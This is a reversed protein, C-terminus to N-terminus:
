DFLHSALGFFILVITLIGLVLGTTGVLKAILASTASPPEVELSQLAKGQVLRAYELAREEKLEHEPLAGTFVVTDM